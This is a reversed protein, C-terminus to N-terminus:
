LNAEEEEYLIIRASVTLYLQSKVSYRGRMGFLRGLFPIHGLIPVQTESSQEIADGIGGVLVTGQDPIMVRTGASKVRITPLELPYFAIGAFVGGSGAGRGAIPIVPIRETFFSVNAITPRLDLTVYKRDASVHPKIDISQGTNIVDIVPDYNGGAATEYDSIYAYQDGFFASSRVGNLSTLEVGDLRRVKQKAEQAKLMAQFLPFALNAYQLVLGNGIASQGLNVATAPLANTVGAGYSYEPKFDTLGATFPAALVGDPMGSWDVGIEEMYNDSVELWDIKIRVLISNALAQSRMFEQVLRQVRPPATVLLWNGRLNLENGADEWVEPAVAIEILDILEEPSLGEEDDGFGGGGGFLDFGGAGADSLAFQAIGMGAFDQPRFIFETVDYAQTIAETATEAGVWLAENRLVWQTDAQRALWNLASEVSMGTAHLTVPTAAAARLEPDIVLNIGAQSAIMEFAQAVEVDDFSVDIRGALKNQLAEEWDAMRVQEEWASVRSGQKDHWDAPFRPRGDFGEPIMSRRIREHLELKLENMRERTSLKRQQHARRLIDGFLTEATANGPFDSVLERSLSLALEYHARQKLSIIKSVRADFQSGEYAREQVSRQRALNQAAAREDATQTARVRDAEHRLEALRVELAAIGAGAPADPFAQMQARATALAEAAQELRGDNALFEAREMAVRIEVDALEARVSDAVGLDLAQPDGGGLQVRMREVGRHAREDGGMLAAAKRYLDLARDFQTLQEARAAEALLAEGSQRQAAHHSAAEGAADAAPADAAVAVAIALMLMVTVRISRM